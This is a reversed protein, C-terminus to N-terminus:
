VRAGLADSVAAALAKVDFPKKVIGDVGRSASPDVVDAWGTLLLV